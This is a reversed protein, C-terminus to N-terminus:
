SDIVYACPFLVSLRPCAMGLVLHPASCSRPTSMTNTPRSTMLLIVLSSLHARMREKWHTHM